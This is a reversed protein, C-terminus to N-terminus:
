REGDGETPGVSSGDPADGTQTRMRRVEGPTSFAVLAKGGLWDRATFPGPFPQGIEDFFRQQAAQRALYLRAYDPPTRWAWRGSVVAAVALLLGVVGFAVRVGAGANGTAFALVLSVLAATAVVGCGVTGAVQRVSRRMAASAAAADAGTDLLDIGTEAKIRAAVVTPDVPAVM